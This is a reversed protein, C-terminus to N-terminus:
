IEKRTILLIEPHLIKATTHVTVTYGDSTFDCPVFDGEPSLRKVETVEGDCILDVTDLEDLGINTFACLLRDGLCGAKLYVEADGPYYVPLCGSERMIEALQAKRAANLFSFAENYVFRANPTGCFVSVSGGLRNEYTTVGPFLVRRHEGDPVNYADSRSVTSDSTPILRKAGMQAACRRGATPLFEGTPHPEGDAIDEIRVGLLDGFGREQLSMASESALLLTGSLMKEIEADTFLRDRGGDLLAAGGDEASYYIPLGLREFVCSAWGNDKSPTKFKSLPITPRVPSSRLPMRAGQWRVAPVIDALARYFGSYKGLIKRYAEGCAPEFDATRTIWHKAGAAGELVSLTLHTHLASASTSYRNHPCTDTEALVIDVSGDLAAIQTAARAVSDIIGRAGPACYNGNHIRVTVPNGEGALIRGIESVGELNDGCACFACPLKPDVRDIGERMAKAAGILSDIQTDYFIQLLERNEPTDIEVRERLEDATVERGFRRSVERLHLHCVCGHYRGRAFLRFDDDVMMSTPRTSALTTMADRIYSRFDEDYPCAVNKEEGDELGIMRTFPVPSTLRGGHGITAQALIGSPLGRRELIRKFKLYRETLLKAKNIPPDGEPTLTMSFIPETAIGDRILREVDNCIEEAHDDHLPTVSFLKM